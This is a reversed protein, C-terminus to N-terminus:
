FTFSTKSERTSGRFKWLFLSKSTKTTLFFFPNVKKTPNTKSEAELQEQTPFLFKERDQMGTLLEERAQEELEQEKLQEKIARKEFATLPEEGVQDGEEEDEQLEGKKGKRKFFNGEEIAFGEKEGGEKEEDSNHFEILNEDGFDRVEVEEIDEEGGVQELESEKEEKVEEKREKKKKSVLGSNKEERKKGGKKSSEKVKREKM